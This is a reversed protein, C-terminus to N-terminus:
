PFFGLQTLWQLWGLPGPCFGSSLQFCSNHSWSCSPPFSSFLPHIWLKNCVIGNQGWFLQTKNERGFLFTEEGQKRVNRRRIFSVAVPEWGQSLYGPHSVVGVVSRGPYPTFLFGDPSYSYLCFVAPKFLVWFFLHWWSIHAQQFRGSFYGWPFLLEVRRM